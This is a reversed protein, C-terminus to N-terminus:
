HSTPAVHALPPAGRQPEDCPIVAHKEIKDSTQDIILSPVLGGVIVLEDLVAKRAGPAM